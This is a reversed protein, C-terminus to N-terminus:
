HAGGTTRMAQLSMDTRVVPPVCLRFPCRAVSPLCWSSLTLSAYTAAIIHLLLVQVNPSVSPDSPLIDVELGFPERSSVRNWRLVVTHAPMTRTFNTQELHEGAPTALFTPSSSVPENTM